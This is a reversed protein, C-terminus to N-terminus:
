ILTLLQPLPSCIKTKNQKKLKNKGTLRQRGGERLVTTSETVGCAVHSGFRSLGTGRRTM